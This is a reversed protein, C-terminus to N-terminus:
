ASRGAPACTQGSIAAPAPLSPLRCCDPDDSPCIRGIGSFVAYSHNRQVGVRLQLRNVMGNGYPPNQEGVYRAQKGVALEREAKRGALLEGDPGIEEYEVSMPLGMRVPEPHGTM